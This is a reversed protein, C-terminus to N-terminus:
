KEEELKDHVILAAIELARKLMRDQEIAYAVDTLDDDAMSSLTAGILEHLEQAEKLSIM